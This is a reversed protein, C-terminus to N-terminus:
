ILSKKLRRFRIHLLLKTVSIKVCDSLSAKSAALAVSTSSPNIIIDGGTSGQNSNDNNSGNNNGSNNSGSGEVTVKGLNQSTGNSYIVVLEGKETIITDMVTKRPSLLSCSSLMLISVFIVLILFILKKNAKM